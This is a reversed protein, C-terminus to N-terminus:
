RHRFGEHFEGGCRKRQADCKRHLGLIRGGFNGDVGHDGRDVTRVDGKAMHQHGAGGQRFPKLVRRRCFQPFAQQFTQDLIFGQRLGVLGFFRVPDRQRQVVFLTLQHGCLRHLGDGVTGDAFLSDGLGVLGAIGIRHLANLVVSRVNQDLGLFLGFFQDCFEFTAGIEGFQGTGVRGSWGTGIATQQAPEAFPAHNCGIFFRNGRHFRAFQRRRDLSPEAPM